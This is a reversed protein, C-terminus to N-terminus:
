TQTKRYRSIILYTVFLFYRREIYLASVVGFAGRRHVYISLVRLLSRYFRGFGILATYLVGWSANGNFVSLGTPLSFKENGVPKRRSIHVIVAWKTNIFWLYCYHRPPSKITFIKKWIKAPRKIDPHCCLQWLQCM